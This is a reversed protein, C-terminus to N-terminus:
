NQVAEVQAESRSLGHVVFSSFSVPVRSRANRSRYIVTMAVPTPLLGIRPVFILWFLESIALVRLYIGLVCIIQHCRTDIICFCQSMGIM